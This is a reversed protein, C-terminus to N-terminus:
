KVVRLSAKAVTAENNTLTVIPGFTNTVQDNPNLHAATAPDCASSGSCAFFRATGTNTIPSNKIVKDTTVSTGPDIEINITKSGAGSVLELVKTFTFRERLALNDRFYKQCDKNLAVVKEHFTNNAKIKTERKEQASQEAGKFQGYLTNFAARKNEYDIDFGVVMGNTTLEANYTTIFASGAELLQSVSEWDAKGAKAYKLSGAEERRTKIVAKPFGPTTILADLEKWIIMGQEAAEEMLAKFGEPISGRQQFDPLAKAALIENRLATGFLVTYITKKTVLFPQNEMYSDVILLDAAYLETEACNYIPRVQTEQLPM